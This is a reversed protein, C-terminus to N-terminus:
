RKVGSVKSGVKKPIGSRETIEIIKKSFCAASDLYVEFDSEELKFIVGMKEKVRKMIIYELFQAGEGFIEDLTIALKEINYPIEKRSFGSSNEIRVYILEKVKEGFPSLAEEIANAMLEEIYSRSRPSCIHV